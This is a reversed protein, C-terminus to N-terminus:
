AGKSYLRARNPVVRGRDAVERGMVRLKSVQAVILGSMLALAADPAIESDVAQKLRRIRHM